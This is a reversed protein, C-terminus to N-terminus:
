WIRLFHGERSRARTSRKLWQQVVAVIGDAHFVAAMLSIPLLEAVSSAVVGELKLCIARISM